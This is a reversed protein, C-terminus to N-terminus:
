NNKNIYKKQYKIIENTEKNLLKKFSGSKKGNYYNKVM